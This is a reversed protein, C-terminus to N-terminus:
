SASQYSGQELFKEAISGRSDRSVYNFAAAVVEPEFDAIVSVSGEKKDCNKPDSDVLLNRCAMPRIEYIRCSEDDGLFVCKSKEKPLDWYDGVSVGQQAELLKKDIPIQKEKIHQKILQTEPESLEVRYHCCFSCGKHCSTKRKNLRSDEVLNYAIITKQAPTLNNLETKFLNVYQNFRETILPLKEPNNAVMKRYIPSGYVEVEDKVEDKTM